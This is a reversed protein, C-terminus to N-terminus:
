LQGAVEVFGGCTEHALQLRWRSARPDRCHRQDTDSHTTGEYPYAPAEVATRQSSRGSHTREIESAPNTSVAKAVLAM